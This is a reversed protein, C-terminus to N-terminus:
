QICCIEITGSTVNGSSFLVQSGDIASTNNWMGNVTDVIGTLAPATTACYSM